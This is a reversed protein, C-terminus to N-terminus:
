ACALNKKTRSGVLRCRVKPRNPDGKDTVVWRIPVVTIGRRKVEGRSIKKHLGIEKVWRNEELKKAHVLDGPLQAGTHDDIEDAWQAASEGKLDFVQESPPPEAFQLELESIWGDDWCKSDFDEAQFCCMLSSVTFVGNRKQLANVRPGVM